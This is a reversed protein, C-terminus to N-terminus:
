LECSEEDSEEEGDPDAMSSALLRTTFNSTHRSKVSNATRTAAKMSKNLAEGSLSAPM